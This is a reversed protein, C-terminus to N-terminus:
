RRKCCLESLGSPWSKISVDSKPSHAALDRARQVNGPQPDRSQNEDVVSPAAPSSQAHGQYSYLTIDKHPMKNSHEKASM